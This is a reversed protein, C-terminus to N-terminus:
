TPLKSAHFALMKWTHNEEIFVEMYALNLTLPNGNVTVAFVGKGVVVATHGAIKVSAEKVDISNHVPKGAKQDSIYQTKTKTWGTNTLITLSDDSIDSLSDIKGEVEWQFIKKSLDLVASEPSSQSFVKLSFFLMIFIGTLKM